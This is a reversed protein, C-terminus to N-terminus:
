NDRLHFIFDTVMWYISDLYQFIRASYYISLAGFNRPHVISRVRTIQCLTDSFIITNLRLSWCPPRFGTSVDRTKKAQELSEILTTSQFLPSAVLPTQYLFLPRRRGGKGKWERIGSAASEAKARKSKPDNESVSLRSCALNVKAREFRKKERSFKFINASARREVYQNSLVRFCLVFRCKRARLMNCPVISIDRMTFFSLTINESCLPRGLQLCALLYIGLIVKVLHLHFSLIKLKLKKQRWTFVLFEKNERSTM